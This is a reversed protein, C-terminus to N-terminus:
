APVPAPTSRFVRCLLCAERLHGHGDRFYQWCPVEPHAFAPCVARREAPCNNMVWCPVPPKVAAPARACQREAEAQWHADLRRLLWIVLATAGLPLGIRLVLGLLFVAFTNLADM